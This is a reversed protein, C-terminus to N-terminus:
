GLLTLLHETKGGTEGAYAEILSNRLMEQQEPLLKKDASIRSIMKAIPEALRKERNRDIRFGFINGMIRNNGSVFIMVYESCLRSIYEKLKHEPDDFMGVCEKVRPDDFLLFRMRNKETETYNDPELYFDLAHSKIVSFDITKRRGPEEEGIFLLEWRIERSEPCEELGKQLIKRRKPYATEALAKRIWKEAKEDRVESANEAAELKKGCYPCFAIGEGSIEKGCHGCLMGM